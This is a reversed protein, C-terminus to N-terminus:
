RALGLASSSRCAHIHSIACDTDALSTLLALAANLLLLLLRWRLALVDCGALATGGSSLVTLLTGLLTSRALTLTGRALTLLALATHGTRCVLRCASSLVGSTLLAELSLLLLASPALLCHLPSTLLAASLALSAVLSSPALGFASYGFVWVNNFYFICYM